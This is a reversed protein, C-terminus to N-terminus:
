GVIIYYKWTEYIIPLNKLIENKKLFDENTMPTFQTVFLVFDIDHLFGHLYFVRLRLSLALFNLVHVLRISHGDIKFGPGNPQV